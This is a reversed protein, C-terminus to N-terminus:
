SIWTMKSNILKWKNIGVYSVTSKFGIAGLGSKFKSGELYVNSFIIRSSEISLLVGDISSDKNVLGEAKLEEYSAEIVDVNYKNEFYTFIRTKDKLTMEKLSNSDIAIYKMEHNLAPDIDMASDLAIRYIDWMDRDAEVYVHASFVGVLLIICTFLILIIGKKRNM